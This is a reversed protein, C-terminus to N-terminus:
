MRSEELLEEIETDSVSSLFTLVNKLSEKVHGLSGVSAWTISDNGNKDLECQIWDLICAIDRQKEQYAQEANQKTM